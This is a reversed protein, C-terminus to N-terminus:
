RTSVLRQHLVGIFRVISGFRYKVSFFERRGSRQCDRPDVGDNNQLAASALKAQRMFDRAQAPSIHLRMSLEDYNLPKDRSIRRIFKFVDM